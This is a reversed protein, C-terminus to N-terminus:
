FAEDRAVGLRVRRQVPEPPPEPAALELRPLRALLRDLDLAGELWDALRAQTRADLGGEQATILGLHREALALSEDRPLCGLLDAGPAQTMARRLIEAHGPGGVQNAAVGAWALGPDFEVYGRVLAAFSRALSRAGAVLLVPLGLLKAMHATSGAEDVADYGDYLGMVGEVVVVDADVAARALIARNEAPALMWSDLNHAPRGTVVAHHGPDIFDPGVKCAQVVLGRRRLAAMLALSVTTKGAGSGSGAVVLGRATSSTNGM